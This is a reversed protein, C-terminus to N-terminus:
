PAMEELEALVEHSLQHTLHARWDASGHPDDFYDLDADALAERLEGAPPLGEFRVQVPRTVAATITIVAEGGEPDRRGIVVAASRGLPTRSHQRFATRARLTREPLHVSRLLEGPGLANHGHGTVFGMAPIQDRSGDPKWVTCLGDLSAALSTMPGAPLALCINGGVTAENWIKFSGLLAECTQRLLARASWSTPAEFDALTRLTCTAAVELGAETVALPHWAFAHLDLLRRVEPQPESFLWTGGALWTDGPRWRTLASRNAPELAEVFPLDM